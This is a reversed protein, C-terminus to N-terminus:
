IAQRTVPQDLWDRNEDYLAACALAADAFVAMDKGRITISGTVGDAIHFQLLMDGPNIVDPHELHGYTKFRTVAHRTELQVSARGSPAALVPYSQEQRM